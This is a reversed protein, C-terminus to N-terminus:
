QRIARERRRHAACLLGAALPVLTVGLAPEPVVDLQPAALGLLPEVSWVITAPADTTAEFSWRLDTAAAGTATVPTTRGVASSTLELRAIFYQPRNVAVSVTEYLDVSEDSLPLLDEYRWFTTAGGILTPLTNVRYQALLSNGASGGQGSAQQTANLFHHRTVFEVDVPDTSTPDDPIVEFRFVLEGKWYGHAQPSPIEPTPAALVATSILAGTQAAYRVHGLSAGAAGTASGMPAPSGCLVVGGGPGGFLFSGGQSLVAGGSHGGWLAMGESELCDELPTQAHAITAIATALLSFVLLSSPGGRFRCLFLFPNM